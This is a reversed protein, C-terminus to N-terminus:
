HNFDVTQCWPDRVARTIVLTISSPCHVVAAEQTGAPPHPRGSAPVHTALARANKQVRPERSFGTRVLFEVLEWRTTCTTVPTPQVELPAWADELDKDGHKVEVTFVDRTHTTAQTWTILVQPCPRGAASATVGAVCTKVLARSWHHLVFDRSPHKSKFADDEEEEEAAKAEAGAEAEKVCGYPCSADECGDIMTSIAGKVTEMGGATQEISESVYATAMAATGPRALESVCKLGCSGKVVYNVNLAFVRLSGAAAAAPAPAPIAAPAPAGEGGGGTGCPPNNTETETEAEAERARKKPQAPVVCAEPASAPESDALLDCTRKKSDPNPQATSMALNPKAPNAPSPQPRKHKPM